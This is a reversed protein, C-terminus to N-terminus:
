SPSFNRAYRTLLGALVFPDYGLADPDVEALDYRTMILLAGGPRYRGAWDGGTVVRVTGSDWILHPNGPQTILDNANEETVIVPACM